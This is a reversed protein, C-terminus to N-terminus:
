ILEVTFKYNDNAANDLVKTFVSYSKSNIVINKKTVSKAYDEITNVDNKWSKVSVDAPVALTIFLWGQANFSYSGAGRWFTHKGASIVDAANQPTHSVKGGYWAWLGTVKVGNSTCIDGSGDYATVSVTHEGETVAITLVGNNVTGMNGSVTYGTPTRGSTGADYSLTFSLSSGVEAERDGQPTLTLTAGVSHGKITLTNSQLLTSDDDSLTAVVYYTHITSDEVQYTYTNSTAGDIPQGDKYWQWGIVTLGTTGASYSATLTVSDGILPNANNASITVAAGKDKYLIDRLVTEISTGAPYNRGNEVYGVFPNFNATLESLLVGSGHQGGGEEDNVGGATVFGNTFLGAYKDKLKVAKTGNNLSYEQFFWSAAVVSSVDQGKSVANSLTQLDKAVQGIQNLVVEVNDTLTINYQPLPSEGYKIAIEKIYLSKSSGAFSFRLINNNRIQKLIDEHTALYFEDFKLPYDYAYSNNELMYNKAENDLRQEANQIYSLPLSIGLLVFTDGGNPQQYVNPMLTGFTNTEKQVIVDIIRESSNPYREYNRQEGDPDFVGDENYFNAKYDDWDVQVTFTCGMCAGSRMNIQMQQTIAACAYLDFGLPPLTIRFYGQTYKDEDINYSDDWEDAPTLDNDNVPVAGIISMQGLEPKIDEFEQIHFSPTNINIENEYPFQESRVADYYDKIEIAPNYDPNTTGDSLYPSVKNFVTQSYISPMLHTRTFPHKILKVYQGGVIGKYIPYSLPNNPDNNITYDWDQNGTWEIQPYGYPINDESGYCAIRTIIKNNKPTRSNNKLGLGQGMKFVFTKGVTYNITGSGIRAVYVDIANEAQYTKNAIITNTGDSSVVFGSEGNITLIDFASLHVISTSRYIGGYMYTNANRSYEENDYSIERSPKGFLVVFRKNGGEESYYDIYEGNRLFTYEGSSISDIIFPIGWTDYATKLADSIYNNNFSLVESIKSIETSSVTQTNILVVWQTEQLNKNIKKCFDDLNGIWSFTKNQSLYKEENFSVAIDTFPINGLLCMPHYFEFSYKTMGKTDSNDSAMGNRVITPPNVLYYKVVDSDGDQQYTIYEGMTVALSNDEYYVDGTIKDGLSMVVSNYTAKHLVLGFFPTGDNNYIQFSINRGLTNQVM